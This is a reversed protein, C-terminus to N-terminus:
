QTDEKKTLFQDVQQKYQQWESCYAELATRGADTIHYYRRNRGQYPQDYTQLYENKQLRRLVPYLTSESISFVSQIQHTLEYGYTDGQAVCALVVADLLATSVSFAAM